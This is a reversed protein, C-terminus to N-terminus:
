LEIPKLMESKMKDKVKALLHSIQAIAKVNLNFVKVSITENLNQLTAIARGDLRMEVRLFGAATTTTILGPNM